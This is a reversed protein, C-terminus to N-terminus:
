KEFRNKFKNLWVVVVAVVVFKLCKVHDYIVRGFTECNHLM